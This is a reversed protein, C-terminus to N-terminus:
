RLCHKSLRRGNGVGHRGQSASRRERVFEDFGNKDGCRVKDLALSGDIGFDWSPSDKDSAPLLSRSCILAGGAGSDSSWWSVLHEGSQGEDCNVDTRHVAVNKREERVDIAPEFQRGDALMGLQTLGENDKGSGIRSDKFPELLKPREIELSIVLCVRGLNLVGQNM